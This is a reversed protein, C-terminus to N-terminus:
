FLSLSLSLSRGFTEMTRPNYLSKWRLLYKGWNVPNRTPSWHCHDQSSHSLSTLTQYLSIQLDWCRRSLNLTILPVSQGSQHKREEDRCGSRPDCCLPSCSLFASFLWVKRWFLFTLIKNELKLGERAGERSDTVSLWGTLLICLLCDGDHTELRCDNQKLAEVSEIKIIVM